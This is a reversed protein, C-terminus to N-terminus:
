RKTEVVRAFTTQESTLVSKIISVYFKTDLAGFTDEFMEYALDHIEQAKQATLEADGKARASLGEALPVNLRANCYLKKWAGSTAAREKLEPLKARIENALRAYRESAEDSIEEKEHRLYPPDFDDSLKSLWAMAERAGDGFVATFYDSAIESFALSENWLSRGHTYTPLWTPCGVQTFQCSHLGNLGLEHLLRNDGAIRAACHMYGPDKYHDWIQNYDFLFSDGDFCSQWQRIGAISEENTRPIRNQNMRYPPLEVAREFRNIPKSYSHAITAMFVFRDQNKLRERAPGWYLNTYCLFGIKATIGERTFAEDMENLLPIYLDAVIKDRCKECECANNCGDSQWFHLCDVEPHQKCYDVAARIMIARAEPDSYCVETELPNDHFLERKGNILALYKRSEEPVPVNKKGYSGEIGFPVCQWTHGVAHYGLDRKKIEEVLRQQLRLTEAETLTEGYHKYVRWFYQRPVLYQIFYENLGLKPMWQIMNKAQTYDLSGELVIGRHRYSPTEDLETTLDSLTLKRRPIVDGDDEPTPFRCGLAYLFRYVAMLVSRPNSGTIVGEGNKVRVLIRDDEACEVGLGVGLAVTACSDRRVEEYSECVFEDVPLTPDMRHIYRALEDMAYTLTAHTGIRTLRLRM